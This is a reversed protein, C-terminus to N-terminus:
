QLLWIEPLGVTYSAAEQNEIKM